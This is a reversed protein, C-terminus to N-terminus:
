TIRRNARNISPDLTERWRSNCTRNTRGPVMAAVAVWDIKYGKGWIKKHTHAVASTLKSDEEPTWRRSAMTAGANPQTDAVKDANADDNNDATPPLVASVRPSDTRRFDEDVTGALPEELRQKKRAPIVEGQPSPPLSVAINQKPPKHYWSESRKAVKRRV